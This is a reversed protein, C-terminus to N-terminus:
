LTITSNRYEAIWCRRIRYGRTGARMARLRGARILRRVTEACVDLEAAAGPVDLVDM